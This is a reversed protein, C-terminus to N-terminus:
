MAVWSAVVIAARMDEVRLIVDRVGRRVAVSATAHHGAHAIVNEILNVVIATEHWNDAASDGYYQGAGTHHFFVKLVNAEAQEPTLTCSDKGTCGEDSKPRAAPFDFEAGAIAQQATWQGKYPATPLKAGSWGLNGPEPITSGRLGGVQIAAQDRGGMAFFQSEVEVKDATHRFGSLVM